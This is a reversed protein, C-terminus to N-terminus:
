VFLIICLVLKPHPLLPEIFVKYHKQQHLNPLSTQWVEDVARRGRSPDWLTNAAGQFVSYENWHFSFWLVTGKLPSGKEWSSLFNGSRYAIILFSFVCVSRCRKRMQAWLLIKMSNTREERVRLWLANTIGLESDSGEAAAWCFCKALPLQFHSVTGLEELNLLNWEGWEWSLHKSRRCRSMGHVGLCKFLLVGPAPTTVSTEWVEYEVM